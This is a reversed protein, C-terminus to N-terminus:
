DFIKDDITSKSYDISKGDSYGEDYARAESVSPVRWSTGKGFDKSLENFGEEVEKPVLLVLGYEQRMQSVQEKFKADLGELFGKIYSDKVMGTIKRNREEGYTDYYIEIYRDAYLKLADYALVYMEKALEVDSEFGYFMIRSKRQKDGAKRLINLYNKVRFNESMINALKREWWLLKKYATAQGQEIPQKEGNEEVESLSISHKIMLKQALLFASQSEEDNQHDNAIALLGRIKKIISENVTEM